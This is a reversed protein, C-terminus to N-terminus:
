LVDLDGLLEMIEVNYGKRFNENEQIGGFMRGLVKREFAAPRKDICKKTDGSILYKV